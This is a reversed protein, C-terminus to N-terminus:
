GLAAVDSVEGASRRLASDKFDSLRCTAADHGPRHEAVAGVEAHLDGAGLRHQAHLYGGV